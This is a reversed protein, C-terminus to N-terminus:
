YLFFALIICRQLIGSFFYRHIAVNHNIHNIEPKNFAACRQSQGRFAWHLDPPPSKFGVCKGVTLGVGGVVFGVRGGVHDVCVVSDLLPSTILEVGLRGVTSGM